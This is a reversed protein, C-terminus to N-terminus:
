QLNELFFDVKARFLHNRYTEGAISHSSTPYWQSDFQKGAKILAEVLDMSQNPRVNDDMMGHVLLLRGTLNSARLLPSGNDYGVRNEAPTKLYREAYVTNYYRFDSVPAVAIGAKFPQQKETMAMLTVFGGYSWGWIGLRDGDIYSQQKLYAAVAIQDKAELQGLQKFTLRRFAAGRSGTGRGDVCVVVFGKQALYYEWDVKYADLVEQSDPGGYQLLVAPYRKTADFNVPTLMWGNLPQGDAAPVRIFTKKGISLGELKHKLEANDSLSRWLKGALDFVGTTPPTNVTSATLMYLSYDSNFAATNVGTETSIKVAKGKIDVQWVSREMPSQVAAQYYFRNKVTDCGLYNIVDWNGTTLQKLLSGNANYVYLHRYGSRESLYTFYRNYFRIADYPPEVFAESQESIILNSVGSRVNLFYLRFASQGRELTMVALQNAKQTFRIRPFYVDQEVPVTLTKNSRSQLHYAHMTVKPNAGGASPYKYTKFSPYYDTRETGPWKSGYLTLTFDAVPREDFKLYALYQSDSSWDYAITAGFEEEYVWDATGNMIANTQGDTTVTLESGYDLRRIYLNNDSSFSVSRGDPSFRADRQNIRESLPEILNRKRDYLYYETLWSRRYLPREESWILVRNEQPSFCYGALKKLSVGRAKELDLISEQLVGTKYDYRNLKKGDASLATYYRPDALPKIVPLMVPKYSGAVISDLSIPANGAAARGLGVLLICVCLFRRM